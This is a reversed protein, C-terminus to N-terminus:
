KKPFLYSVVIAFIGLVNVTTGGILALVVPDSLSFIRLPSLFGQILLIILIAVVWWVILWFIHHAYDKRGQIDQRFGEVEARKRDTELQREEELASHDPQQPAPEPAIQEIQQEPLEPM